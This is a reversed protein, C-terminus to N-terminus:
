DRTHVKCYSRNSYSPTSSILMLDPTANTFNWYYARSRSHKIVIACDDLRRLNM